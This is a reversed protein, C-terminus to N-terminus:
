LRVPWNLFKNKMKLRLRRVGARLFAREKSVSQQDLHRERGGIQSPM